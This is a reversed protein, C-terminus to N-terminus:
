SHSGPWHPKLPATKALRGWARSHRNGGRAPLEAEPLFKRLYWPSARWGPGSATSLAAASLCAGGHPAAGGPQGALVETSGGAAEAASSSPLTEPSFDSFPVYCASTVFLVPNPLDGSGLAEDMSRLHNERM